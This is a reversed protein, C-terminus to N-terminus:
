SSERVHSSVRIVRAHRGPTHGLRAEAAGAVQQETRRGDGPQRVVGRRDGDHQQHDGAGAVRPQGAQQDRRERHGRQDRARHEARVEVLQPALPQQEDGTLQREREVQGGDEGQGPV